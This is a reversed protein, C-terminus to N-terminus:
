VLNTTYDDSRPKHSQSQPIYLFSLSTQGGRRRSLGRGREGGGGGGRRERLSGPSRVLRGPFPSESRSALRGTKEGSSGLGGVMQSRDGVDLFVREGQPPSTLPQGPATDPPRERGRSRQGSSPVDGAM